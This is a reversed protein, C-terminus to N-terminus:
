PIAEHSVELEELDTEKPPNNHMWEDARALKEKMAPEHLWRENVPMVVAHKLLIDGGPLTEMIFGMGSMAKGLSIQGSKGVIKIDMKGDKMGCSQMYAHYLLKMKTPLGAIVGHGLRRWVGAYFPLVM